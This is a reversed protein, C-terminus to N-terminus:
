YRTLFVVARRQRGSLPLYGDEEIMRAGDSPHNKEGFRRGVDHLLGAMRLARRHTVDLKHLHETLDFLKSAISMVRREHEIRGLQRRAWHEAAREKLTRGRAPGYPIQALRSSAGAALSNDTRLIPGHRNDQAM